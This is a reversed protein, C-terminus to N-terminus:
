DIDGAGVYDDTGDFDLAYPNFFTTGTNANAVWDSSPDMTTLTGHNGYRSSDRAVTSGSGDDFRWYGILGNDVTVNELRLGGGELELRESSAKSSLLVGTCSTM